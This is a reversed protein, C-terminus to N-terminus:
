SSGKREGPYYWATEVSVPPRHDTGSQAIIAEVQRKSEASYVGIAQVATWPFSGKVLFEAQKFKRREDGGWSSSRIIPWNLEPLDALDEHFDAEALEAHLNTFAFPPGLSVAAEATGVLHIVPSQGEAYGDVLGCWISHLMVSRPCFYFPVYDALVGGGSAEVIRRRRREKIHAHGINVHTTQREIRENDCWLRGDAIIGALNRM